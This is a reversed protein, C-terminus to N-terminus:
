SDAEEFFRSPVAEKRGIDTRGSWNSASRATTRAPSRQRERKAFEGPFRRELVTMAAGWDDSMANRITGIAEDAVIANAPAVDEAFRKAASDANTAAEGKGIWAYVQTRSVGALACAHTLTNGRELGGRDGHSTRSHVKLSGDEGGQAQRAGGHRTLTTLDFLRPNQNTRIRV